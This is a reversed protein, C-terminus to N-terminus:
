WRICEGTEKSGLKEAVRLRASRARPNRATEAATPRVPRKTVVLLDAKRGCACVPLDPPCTCGGSHAQLFQKVLRDELSHFSIVVLRGGPRLVALSQGLAAQLNDLERNVAIRLAQFTRRAPHPGRRRAAAPIAEKVLAALEGTTTLPRRRRRAVIARAIRRAWREEGYQAIIRALEEEPLQNVLDAATPGQTPDMRMDLPADQRYSFGREGAEVQLSSFGLDFLIGDVGGVGLENLVGQLDRFNAKALIVRGKAGALRSQAAALAAPDRDLGVLLGQPGLAQLIAYSHGGGGVTADVYVGDPRVKLGAIAEALLVPQHKSEGEGM